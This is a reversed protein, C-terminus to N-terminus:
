KKVIVFYGLAFRKSLPFIILPKVSVKSFMRFIKNFSFETFRWFDNPIDHLPYLFPTAFVAEGRPKLIRYIESIAKQFERVHELVNLCIVIDFSKDPYPLKTVDAIEDIGPHIEIDTSIYNCNKFVQRYGKEGAGIELVRLGSKKRAYKILEIETLLRYPTKFFM